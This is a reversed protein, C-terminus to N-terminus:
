FEPIQKTYVLEKYSIQLKIVMELPTTISAALFPNSTRLHMFKNVSEIPKNQKTLEEIIMKDTAVVLDVRHAFLMKICSEFSMTTFVNNYDEQILFDHNIDNKVVVISLSKYLNNKNLIVRSNNQLSFLFTDAKREAVLGIWKFMSEREPTRNISYILTNPNNLAMQYARAWPFSGIEFEIEANKLVKNVIETASGVIVGNETYNLPPLEETVINLKSQACLFNPTFVFSLIVYIFINIYNAM